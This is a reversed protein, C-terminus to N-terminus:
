TKKSILLDVPTFEWDLLLRLYVPVPNKKIFGNFDPSLPNRSVNTM